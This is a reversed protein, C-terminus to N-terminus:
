KSTVHERKWDIVSCHMRSMQFINKGDRATCVRVSYAAQQSVGSHFRAFFAQKDTRCQAFFASVKFISFLM